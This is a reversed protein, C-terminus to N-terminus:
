KKVKNIVEEEKSIVKQKKSIIEEKNSRIRNSGLGKCAGQLDRTLPENITEPQVKEFSCELSAGENESHM